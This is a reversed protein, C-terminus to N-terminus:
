ICFFCLGAKFRVDHRRLRRRLRYPLTLVPLKCLTLCVGGHGDHKCCERGVSLPRSRLRAAAGAAGRRQGPGLDVDGHCIYQQRSDPLPLCRLAMRARRVALIVGIDAHWRRLVEAKHSGSRRAVMGSVYDMVGQMDPHSSGESSWVM